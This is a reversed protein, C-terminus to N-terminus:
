NLKSYNENIRITSNYNLTIIISYKGKDYITFHKYDILKKKLYYLVFNVLKVNSM